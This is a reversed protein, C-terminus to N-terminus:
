IGTASEARSRRGGGAALLRDLGVFLMGLAVLVLLLGAANVATRAYGIAAADLFPYPYRGTLAGRLLAYALYAAPYILWAPLQRLSLSGKPVYVAWFVVFTLPVVDHFLTDAVWSWGQPNWLRRLLLEYALSVLTIAVAVGTLFVPRVLRRALRSGRAAVQVSLTLAIALNTLITFYSFLDALRVELSGPLHAPNLVTLILQVTLAFWALAAVCGAAFDRSMRRNEATTM